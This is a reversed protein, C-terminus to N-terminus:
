MMVKKAVSGIIGGTATVSGNGTINVNPSELQLTSSQSSTSYQGIIGGFQWCSGTQSVSQVTAKKVNLMDGFSGYNLVGFVGGAHKCDGLTLNQVTLNELSIETAKEYTLKGIYGGSESAGQIKGSRTVTQNFTIVADEAAGVLGGAAVEATVDGTLKLPGTVTLSADAKMEGVLGGANGNTSAVPYKLENSESTEDTYSSITLVADREMTNCFFGVNDAGSVTLNVGTETSNKVTLALRTNAEMTGIIGGFGAKKDPDDSEATAEVTLSINGGDESGASINQKVNVFHEALLPISNQGRTKLYLGSGIQASQDLYNFFSHNILIDITSTDANTIKLTGMFPNNESGLGQFTKKDATTMTLDLNETTNRTITITKNQYYSAEKNSLEILEETSKIDIEESTSDANLDAPAADSFLNEQTDENTETDSFGIDSQDTDNQNTDNQDSDTIEIDSQDTDDQDSDPIEVDSQDSNDADANGQDTDYSGTNGEETNSQGSDDSATNREETNSQGSDNPAINEQGFDDTEVQSMAFVAESDSSEGAMVPESFTQMLLSGAMLGALIKKYKWKLM